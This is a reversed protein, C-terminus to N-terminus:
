LTVSRKVTRGEEEEEMGRFHCDKLLYSTGLLILLVTIIIDVFM